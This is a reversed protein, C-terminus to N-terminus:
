KAIAIATELKDGTVMFFRINALLLKQITIAVGSQLRDEIAACGIYWLGKEM